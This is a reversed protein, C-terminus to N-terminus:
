RGTWRRGMGHPICAFGRLKCTYVTAYIEQLYGEHQTRFTFKNIIHINDIVNEALIWFRVLKYCICTGQFNMFHTDQFYTKYM